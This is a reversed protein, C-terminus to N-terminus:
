GTYRVIVMTIDDYVDYNELEKFIRDRIVELPEGASKKVIEALHNKGFMEHITYKKQDVGKIRAETIGDTYLLMLDDKELVLSQDKMLESVDKKLGLWMGETDVFELLDNRSRYVIIDQHLGSFFWRGGPYASLLTITMYKYDDLKHVNETIVRNVDNLVQSPSYGKEQSIISHLATQVMMMVLGASVGHGSVDGIVIWDREDTNIIDYYDGGVEKAPEMCALIEYGQVRPKKPLLVTQLKRALEMEGWLNNMAQALDTTAAEAREKEKRLQRDFEKLEDRQKKFMGATYAVFVGGMLLNADYFLERILDGQQGLYHIAVLSTAAYATSAILTFGLSFSFSAQSLLFVFCMFAWFLSLSRMDHLLLIVAIWLAFWTLLEAVYIGTVFRDGFHNRTVIIVHFLSVALVTTGSVLFIYLFPITILGTLKLLFFTTIPVLYALLAFGNMRLLYKKRRRNKKDVLASEL